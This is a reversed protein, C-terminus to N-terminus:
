HVVEHTFLFFSESPVILLMTTETGVEERWDIERCDWMSGPNLLINSNWGAYIIFDTAYFYQRQRRRAILSM